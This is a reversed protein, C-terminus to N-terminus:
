SGPRLPTGMQRAVAEIWQVVMRIEDAHAEGAAKHEEERAVSDYDRDSIKSHKTFVPGSAIQSVQDGSLGLGFFAQVEEIVPAPNALLRASDLTMVRQRGFKHAIRDFHGIQMLWALGAIQADTQLLLDSSTYGFNMASWSSLQAFMNRGFIRGFMGRRLLSQLFSELDSYLLVACSQPRLTLVPDLLRNAFNTSKVIVSEGPKSPRELLRLVLELRQRNAVDESQAFRNALNMLVDPERLGSSVGPVELARALLTSGCFSTHFVFHIPGPAASGAEAAMSAAPFTAKAFNGAFHEDSLFTLGGRAAHPVHVLTLNAGTADYTHPVWEPDLAVERLSPTAM